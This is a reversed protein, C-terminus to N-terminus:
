QVKELAKWKRKVIKFVLFVMDSLHLNEHEIRIHFKIEFLVHVEYNFNPYVVLIEHYVRMYCSHDFHLDIFNRTIVFKCWEQTLDFLHIREDKRITKSM